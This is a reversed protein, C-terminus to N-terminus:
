RKKKQRFLSCQENGLDDPTRPILLSLVVGLTKDDHQEYNAFAHADMIPCGLSGSGNDTWNVCRWCYRDEYDAGESGSSFYGM